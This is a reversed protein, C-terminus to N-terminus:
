NKLPLNYSERAAPHHSKCELWADLDSKRYLVARKTPKYYKAGEGHMRMNALTGVSMHLYAAAQKPTFLDSSYEM